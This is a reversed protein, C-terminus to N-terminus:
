RWVRYLRVSRMSWSGRGGRFETAQLRAIRKSVKSKTNDKAVTAKAPDSQALVLCGFSHTGDLSQGLCLDYFGLLYQKRMLNLMPIDKM